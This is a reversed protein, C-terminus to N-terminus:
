ENKLWEKAVTKMDIDKEIDGIKKENWEKREEKKLFDNKREKHRGRQKNIIKM